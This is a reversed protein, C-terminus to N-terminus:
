NIKRATQQTLWDLVWQHNIKQLEYDTPETGWPTRGVSKAAARFAQIKAALFYDGAALNYVRLDLAENRRGGDHFSGDRRKEEATLALFYKESRDAPFACFGPAQLHGPKRAIKLNNYTMTKYFNTSVEIFQVGGQRQSMAARWRIFNSPGAEDGISKGKEENRRIRLANVGKSAFTNEWRQAFAYVIDVWNGDGSDIFVTQVAFPMGDAQRTIVMGGNAAWDNLKEWAGSFADTTTDGLIVKHLLSWTKHRAGHGLIELELRAPNNPDTVSGSQVDVSMTTFLVGDPVDRGDLYELRNEIVNEVKPRSGREQYPVGLYLNVWSRMGDPTNKAELYKDYMKLWTMMGVPSYMSSIYYSRQNKKRPKCTPQWYAGNRPDLMVRKHHNYIPEHCHECEYWVKSLQGDSNYEPRLQRFKLWEMIGCHPCPVMYVRQDGQEFKKRMMSTDWLGPTSYRLKKARAGWANTRADVVDLFNGEGTKLQAPAGDVEDVIVIRKSDSRLSAASQSSVINLTGGAYEKSLVKDGSRRSKTKTPDIQASVRGRMGISDILPDLRKTSWIEALDDTATAYLIETPCASMYYGVVNEAWATLGLQAGKLVDTEEVPSYPSMNDVIEIGYPTKYNDWYGPFPTNVPLVRFGHVWESILAPPPDVPKKENEALLFGLDGTSEAVARRREDHRRYYRGRKKPQPTGSM